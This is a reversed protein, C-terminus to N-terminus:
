PCAQVITEDISPLYPHIADAHFRGVLELTAEPTLRDGYLLGTRLHPTSSRSCAWGSM